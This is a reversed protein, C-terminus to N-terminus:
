RRFKWWKSNDTSDSGGNQSQRYAYDTATNNDTTMNAQITTASKFIHSLFVNFKSATMSTIDLDDGASTLTTTGAKTWVM